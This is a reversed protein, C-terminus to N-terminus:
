ENGKTAVVEISIAANRVREEILEAARSLGNRTELRRRIERCAAAVKESSCLHNLHRALRSGRFRNPKISSGVGWKELRAANDYQDHALPMLVQPVGAALAQSTSGIGGHHVFAGCRPLLRDLPVYSFHRVSEPLNAPIQEPFETLLIGRRHLLQCAKVAAEFFVRGHVNASGPTFVIPPTGASLFTEVEESLGRSQDNWLPFDTQILNDPWDSAPSCYWDPFLCLVAFRSHWWRTIKSMPPLGLERRWENLFPCVVPDIFYREGIRYLFQRLWRPGFLGPITPPRENSWIVAPQAHLTVVPIGLKDQAVLAGFGFANTIGVVPGRSAHEAHIQYQRKLSPRLWNFIHAFSRRPHWLDSHGIAAAFTEKSGLPEFPIGNRSVVDAYHENTAFVVDHGRNRLEVALGLMPFVDGSSGFTSCIFNM